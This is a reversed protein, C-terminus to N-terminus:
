TYLIVHSATYWYIFHTFQWFCDCRLHKSLDVLALSKRFKGLPSFDVVSPPLSNWVNIVRNSFLSATTCNGCYYKQLKYKHGKTSSVNFQFFISCQLSILGFIILDIELRRRELSTLSLRRFRDSCSLNQLGPLCKTFHRQVKEIRRIDQM